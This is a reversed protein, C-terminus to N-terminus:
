HSTTVVTDTSRCSTPKSNKFGSTKMMNQISSRSISAPKGTLDEYYDESLGKVDNTTLSIVVKYLFVCITIIAAVDPESFIRPRGGKTSTGEEPREMKFLRRAHREGVGVTAAIDKWKKNAKHLAQVKDWNEVPTGM